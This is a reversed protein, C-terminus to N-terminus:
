EVEGGVSHGLLGSVEPEKFVAKKEGLPYAALLKLQLNHNMEAGTYLEDAHIFTRSKLEPQKHRVLYCVIWGKKKCKEVNNHFTSAKSKSVQLACSSLYLLSSEHQPSLASIM